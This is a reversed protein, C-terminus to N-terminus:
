ELYEGFLFFSGRDVYGRVFREGILCLSEGIWVEVRGDDVLEGESVLDDFGVGGVILECVGMLMLILVM